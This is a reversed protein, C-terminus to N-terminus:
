PFDTLSSTKSRCPRKVREGKRSSRINRRLWRRVEAEDIGCRIITEAILNALAPDDRFEKPVIGTLGTLVAWGQGKEFAVRIKELQAVTMILFGNKCDSCWLWDAWGHGKSQKVKFTLEHNRKCFFKVTIADLTALVLTITAEQVQVEFRSPKDRREQARRQQDLEVQDILDQLENWEDETVLPSGGWPDPSVWQMTPDSWIGLFYHMRLYRIVGRPDGLELTRVLKQFGPWTPEKSLDDVIQDWVQRANPSWVGWKQQKKAKQGNTKVDICPLKGSWGNPILGRKWFRRITAKIQNGKHHNRAEAQDLLSVVKMRAGPIGMAASQIQCPFHDYEPFYLPRDKCWSVWLICVGGFWFRGFRDVRVVLMGDSRGRWVDKLMCKFGPRHYNKGSKKDWYVGSIEIQRSVCFDMMASFQAELSLDSQEEASVRLYLSLKRMSGDEKLFELQRQLKRQDSSVDDAKDIAPIPLTREPPDPLDAERLSNVGPKGQSRRFMRKVAKGYSEWDMFEGSTFERPAIGGRENVRQPVAGDKKIYESDQPSARSGRNQQCRGSTQNKSSGRSRSKESRDSM